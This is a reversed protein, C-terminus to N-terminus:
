KQAEPTPGSIRALAREASERVRRYYDGKLADLAEQHRASGLTVLAEAAAARVEPSDHSLDKAVEDAASRDGIQGLALVVERRGVAAPDELYHLLPAVAEKAKLEGLLAAAIPTEPGGENVLSILAPVAAPTTGSARLAEV